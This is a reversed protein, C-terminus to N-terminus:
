FYINFADHNLNNATFHRSFRCLPLSAIAERAPDDPDRSIFTVLYRQMRRYPSNDAYDNDQYDRHYVVCPYQMQVNQPPQFYVNPRDYFATMITELLEQFELRKTAQLALNGPVTM